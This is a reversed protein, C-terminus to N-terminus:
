PVAESEDDDEFAEGGTLDKIAIIAKLLPFMERLAGATMTFSEAIDWNPADEISLVVKGPKRSFSITLRSGM